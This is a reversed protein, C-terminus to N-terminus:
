IEFYGEFLEILHGWTGKVQTVTQSLHDKGFLYARFDGAETGQILIAGEGWIDLMGWLRLCLGGGAYFKRLCKPTPLPM